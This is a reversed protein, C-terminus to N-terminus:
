MVALTAFAHAPSRCFDYRRRPNRGLGRPAKRLTSSANNGPLRRRVGDPTAAAALDVATGGRRDTIGAGVTIALRGAPRGHDM